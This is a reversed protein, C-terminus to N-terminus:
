VEGSDGSGGPTWFKILYNFLDNGNPQRKGCQSGRHFSTPTTHTQTCLTPKKKWKLWQPPLHYHQKEWTIDCKITNVHMLIAKHTWTHKKDTTMRRSISRLPRHQEQSCRQWLTTVLLRPLNAVALLRTGVLVGTCMVSRCVRVSLGADLTFFYYYYGVSKCIFM